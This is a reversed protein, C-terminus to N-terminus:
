EIFLVTKKDFDSILANIKQIHKPLRELSKTQEGSKVYYFHLKPHIRWNKLLVDSKFRKDCVVLAQKFHSSFFIKKVSPIKKSFFISNM